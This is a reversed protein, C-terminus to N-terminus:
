GWFVRCSYTNTRSDNILFVMDCTSSRRIKSFWGLKLEEVIYLNNLAIWTYIKTDYKKARINNFTDAYQFFNHAFRRLRVIDNSKIEGYVVIGNNNAKVRIIWVTPSVPKQTSNQYRKGVASPEM